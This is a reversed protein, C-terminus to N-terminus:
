RSDESTGDTTPTTGSEAASDKAKLSRSHAALALMTLTKVDDRTRPRDPGEEDAYSRMLARTVELFRPEDLWQAVSAITDSFYAVFEDGHRSRFELFLKACVDRREDATKMWWTEDDTRVGARLCARERVYARVLDYIIADVAEPSAHPGTMPSKEQAPHRSLLPLSQFKRDVEWAFGIMAPKTRRREQVSHVFFFWQRKHIPADLEAFWPRNRLLTLILGRVLEPNHFERRIISYEEILQEEVSIRGHARLKVNNGTVVMHFFEIGAVYRSPRESLTRETALRDLNDLFELPGQEPVAIVAGAPRYLNRKPDLRGLLEKYRKCFKGLDGIEPIALTYGVFECDGDADIRQPVFIRTTLPWFHLLLQWEVRDEFPVAEATVAQVALMLSGALQATATTGKATAKERALLDKWAEAGEKTPQDESRSKFAQRTTPKNRPVAYIMDRWLKHWPEKDGGTYNRLFFGKPQVTDYIFWRKPEDPKPNPNPDQRKETAGQWKSKSRVEVTEAAYLDDFLDQVSRQTFRVVVSTGSRNGQSIIEPVECDHPLQGKLRRERMNEIQLLLGALGAKHQASPLDRLDYLVDISTPVPPKEPKKAV